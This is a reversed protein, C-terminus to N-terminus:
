LRRVPVRQVGRASVMLKEPVPRLEPVVSDRPHDNADAFQCSRPAAEFTPCAQAALSCFHSGSRLVHFSALRRSSAGCRFAGRSITPLKKMPRRCSLDNKAAAALSPRAIATPVGMVPRGGCLDRRAHNVCRAGAKPIQRRLTREALSSPYPTSTLVGSCTSSDTGM